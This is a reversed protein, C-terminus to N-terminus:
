NILVRDGEIDDKGVIFTTEKKCKKCEAVRKGMDVIMFYHQTDACWQKVIKPTHTKLSKEGTKTNEYETWIGKDESTQQWSM